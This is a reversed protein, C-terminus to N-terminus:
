KGVVFLCLPIEVRVRKAKQRGEAKWLRQMESHLAVYEPTSRYKMAGIEKERQLRYASAEAYTAFTLRIQESQKM